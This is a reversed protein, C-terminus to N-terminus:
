TSSESRAVSDGKDWEHELKGREDAFVQALRAMVSAVLEDAQRVATRPDDVFGSQVDHWRRRNDNLENDPFLSVRGEVAPAESKGNAVGGKMRAALDATNLPQEQTM